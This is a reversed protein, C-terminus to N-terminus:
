PRDWDVGDVLWRGERRVLSLLVTGTDVPVSVEAYTEAYLTITIRGTVRSAPVRSPDVGTMQDKLWQTAFEDIGAHWAEMGADTHLYAATFDEAVARVAPDDRTTPPSAAVGDDGATPDVHQETEAVGPHLGSPRDSESVLTALGHVALVLVALGLALVGRLGLVTFVRRM